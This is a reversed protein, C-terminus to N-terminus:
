GQRSKDLRSTTEMEAYCHVQAACGGRRRQKRLHLASPLDASPEM